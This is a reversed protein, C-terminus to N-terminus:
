EEKFVSKKFIGNGVACDLCRKHQCYHNTLEILAQSDLASRNAIGATKWRRTLQNQEAPLEYLWQIAKQKYREDRSYSGYAFVLPVVTNVLINEAMQKGLHKPRYATAEDFRYHYHWYDNATVMFVQMMKGIDQEEKMVSFLHSSNHLLVALQALRITPFAAPRMRLFAPQRNVPRLQYKKKLFRYEKQLLVAYDDTFKGYLLNAQGLLLAELQHLQSRHKALLNVSITEAMAEFLASNVKIGFNSALMRWCLEEWHFNIQKLLALLQASKRQLREAALREKWACWALNDIVPLQPECPVLDMANMMQAYREWALLPVRHQLELTPIENGAGDYVPADYQWVVHLIVNAYNPDGNHGHRHWDSSCLHLEVNGIWKTTGIRVTAELFDPGQHHNHMGAREIQVADGQVTNLHQKNFYQFRWIFQLLKENM